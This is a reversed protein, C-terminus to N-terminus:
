MDNLKINKEKKLLYNILVDMLESKMNYFIRM